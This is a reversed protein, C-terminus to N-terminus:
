VASGQTNYELMGRSGTDLPMFLFFVYKCEYLRVTFNRMSVV